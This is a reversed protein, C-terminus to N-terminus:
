DESGPNVENRITILKSITDKKIQLDEESLNINFYKYKNYKFDIENSKLLENIIEVKEERSEKFELLLFPKSRGFITFYNGSGKTVSVNSQTYKIDIKHTKIQEKVLESLKITSNVVWPYKNKWFSDNVIKSEDEIEEEEYIDLIKTFNLIYNQESQILDLQIAILPISHSLLQVVNFYRREFSEAILVCFHQRQPFRRKENDYYEIARIIHSPDTDGLMIEVEYMSNDDTDKLQLDLRGGNSQKKEKSLPILKGLGLIEPNQYIQDQVWYEDRGFSRLSIKNGINIKKENM